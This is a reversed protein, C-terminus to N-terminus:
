SVDMLELWEGVGKLGVERWVMLVCMSNVSAFKEM